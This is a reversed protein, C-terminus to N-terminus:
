RAGEPPPEPQRDMAPLYAPIDAGGTQVFAASTSGGAFPGGGEVTVAFRFTRGCETCTAPRQVDKYGNLAATIPFKLWDPAACGPCPFHTVVNAGYGSVRQNRTARANYEDLTAPDSM